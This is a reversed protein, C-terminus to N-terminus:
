STIPPLSWWGEIRVWAKRIIMMTTIMRVDGTVAAMFERTIIATLIFARSLTWLDFMVSAKSAEVSKVTPTRICGKYTAKILVIKSSSVELADHAKCTKVLTKHLIPTQAEKIWMAKILPSHNRAMLRGNACKVRTVSELKSAAETKAHSSEMVRWM